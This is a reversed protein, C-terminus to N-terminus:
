QNEFIYKSSHTFTGTESCQKSTLTNLQGFCQEIQVAAGKRSSEMGNVDFLNLKTEHRETPDSINPDKKLVNVASRM